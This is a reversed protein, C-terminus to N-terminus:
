GAVWDGVMPVALMAVKQGDSQVARMDAMWDVLMVVMKVVMSVAMKSVKKSGTEDAKSGAKISVLKEAM